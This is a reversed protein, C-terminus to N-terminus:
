YNCNILMKHFKHRFYINGCVRLMFMIFLITIPAYTLLGFSSPTSLERRQWLFLLFCVILFSISHCQYSLYTYKYKKALLPLTLDEAEKKHKIVLTLLHPFANNTALVYFAPVSAKTLLISTVLCILLLISGINKSIIISHFKSIRMLQLSMEKGQTNLNHNWPQEM